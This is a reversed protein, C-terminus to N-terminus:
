LLLCDCCLICALKNFFDHRDCHFHASFFDEKVLVFIDVACGGKFFQACEACCELCVAGYGCAVCGADVVACAETDDGTFFCHCFVAECRHCFDNADTLATNFRVDHAKTRDGCDAICQFICIHGEAIHFDKFQVFCKCCM